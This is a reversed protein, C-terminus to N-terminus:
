KAGNQINAGFRQKRISRDFETIECALLLRQEQTLFSYFLQERYRLAM